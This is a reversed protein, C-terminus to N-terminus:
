VNWVRVCEGRADRKQPSGFLASYGLRAQSASHLICGFLLTGTLAGPSHQDVPTILGRRDAGHETLQSLVASARGVGHGPCSYDPDPDTTRVTRGGRVLLLCCSSGKQDILPQCRSEKELSNARDLSCRENQNETEKKKVPALDGNLVAQGCASVVSTVSPCTAPSSM